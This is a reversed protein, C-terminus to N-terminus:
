TVHFVQVRDHIHTVPPGLSPSELDANRAGDANRCGRPGSFARHRGAPGGRTGHVIISCSRHNVAMSIVGAAGSPAGTKPSERGGAGMFVIVVYM